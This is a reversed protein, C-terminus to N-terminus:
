HGKKEGTSGAAPTEIPPATAFIELSLCDAAMQSGGGEGPYTAKIKSLLAAVAATGSENADEARGDIAAITAAFDNAAKMVAASRALFAQFGAATEDDPAIFHVLKVKVDSDEPM